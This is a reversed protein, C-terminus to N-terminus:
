WWQKVYVCVRSRACLGVRQSAMGVDRLSILQKLIIIMECPKRGRTLIWWGTRIKRAEVMKEKKKKQCNRYARKITTFLMRWSKPYDRGRGDSVEKENKGETGEM